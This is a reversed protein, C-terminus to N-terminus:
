ALLEVRRLCAANVSEDHLRMARRAVASRSVTRHLAGM